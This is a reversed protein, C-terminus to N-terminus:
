RPLQGSTQRIENYSTAPEESPMHHANKRALIASIARYVPHMMHKDVRFAAPNPSLLPLVFAKLYGQQYAGYHGGLNGTCAVSPEWPYQRLKAYCAADEASHVVPRFGVRGAPSYCNGRIANVLSIGLGLYWYDGKSWFVDIGHRSACLASRLDYDASVSPALFIMRDVTDPPLEEAAALLVTTGACHGVLYIPMEPYAQREAILIAALRHGQERAHDMGIQDAVIRYYGHSWVFTKVTLPLKEAAIAKRLSHSLVRFDGAGDAVFVVGCPHLPGPGSVIEHRNLACGTAMLIVPLVAVSLPYISRSV